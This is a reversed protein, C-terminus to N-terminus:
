NRFHISFFSSIEYRMKYGCQTFFTIQYHLQSPYSDFTFYLVNSMVSANLSIIMEAGRDVACYRAFHKDEFISASRILRSCRQGYSFGKGPFALRVQMKQALFPMKKDRILSKLELIFTNAFGHYFTLEILPQGRAYIVATRHRRQMRVCLFSLYRKHKTQM